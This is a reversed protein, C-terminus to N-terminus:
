NVVVPKTWTVTGSTVHWYYNKGVKTDLVAQWGVPLDLNANEQVVYAQAQPQVNTQARADVVATNADRQRGALPNSRRQALEQERARERKLRDEEAGQLVERSLPLERARRSAQASGPRTTAQAQQSAGVTASGVPAKWSVENTQRNFYYQKGSSPDVTSEWGPPLSVQGGNSVPAPQKRVLEASAPRTQPVNQIAVWSPNAMNGGSNSQMRHDKCCYENPRADWTPKGCGNLACVPLANCLADRASRVTRRWAEECDSRRYEGTAEDILERIYKTWRDTGCLRDRVLMLLIGLWNNGNGDCNDSWISDRNLANNHELLFADETKRLLAAMESGNAFKGELVARMAAFSNNFGAYTSDLDVQRGLQFAENGQLNSFEEARSWCKLAQYAAEASRFYRTIGGQQPATLGLGNLGLDYFNGLFPAQCLRDWPDEQCDYFYFAVVGTTQSGGAQRPDLMFVADTRPAYTSTRPSQQVPQQQAGPRARGGSPASGM